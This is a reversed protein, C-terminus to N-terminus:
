RLYKGCHPWPSSGDRAYLAQAMADQDGPAALNPQVGVLDGRGVQSALGNWTSSSFQYAGFYMGNSSVVSYNGSSECNRLAAWQAPTPGSPPPPPPPPPAPATTTTPAATSTTAVDTDATAADAAV